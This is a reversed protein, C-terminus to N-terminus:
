ALPQFKNQGRRFRRYKDRQGIVTTNGTHQRKKAAPAYEAVFEPNLIDDDIRCVSPVSDATKKDFCCLVLSGREASM